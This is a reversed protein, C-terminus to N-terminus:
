TPFDAEAIADVFAVLERATVEDAKWKADITRSSRRRRRPLDRDGQRYGKV